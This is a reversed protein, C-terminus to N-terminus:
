KGAAQQLQEITAVHAKLTAVEAKLEALGALIANTREDAIRAHGYTSSLLTKVLMEGDAIGKDSPWHKIIWNLVPVADDLQMEHKGETAQRQAIKRLDSASAFAISRDLPKSTFQWVLPAPHLKPQGTKEARDYSSGQVPYWPYWLPWGTPMRGGAIDSGSTYIGVFQHPFAHQVLTLWSQSWAQIEHATRGAYNRRDPYAELDLWHMFPGTAYAKVAGIYNEANKAVEENPWAFHYAGPLIGAKQIGAMHRDFMNDRAGMGESAKAFAFAVGDQKHQPWNQSSQNNSVDLGRCMEM